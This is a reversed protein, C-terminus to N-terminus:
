YYSTFSLFFCKLKSKELRFLLERCFFPYIMRTFGIDMQEPNLSWVGIIDGNSITVALHVLTCGAIFVLISLAMKSFKRFAHSYLWPQTNM